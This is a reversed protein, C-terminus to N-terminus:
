LKQLYKKTENLSIVDGYKANMEFLNFEHAEQCRDGVCEAPIIPRFGYQLADLVTARICGSTACGTVIVTDVKQSTLLSGLNTGFFASPYKKIIRYEDHRPSLREDIPAWKSGRRFINLVPIKKPWHGADRLEQDYEIVIFVIPVDKERALDLLMKVNEVVADLDSGLPSEQDTLAKQLDVVLLAPSKGRGISHMFGAHKYMKEREVM